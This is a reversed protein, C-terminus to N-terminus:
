PRRSSIATARRWARVRRVGVFVVRQTGGALEAALPGEGSSTASTSLLTGGCRSPSCITASAWRM